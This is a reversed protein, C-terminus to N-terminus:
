EFSPAQLVPACAAPSLPVPTKGSLPQMITWMLLMMPDPSAMRLASFLPFGKPPRPEAGFGAPSRVGSGPHGLQHPPPQQERGLFGVGVRPRRSKWRAGWYFFEQARWQQVPLHTKVRVLVQKDFGAMSGSFGYVVM